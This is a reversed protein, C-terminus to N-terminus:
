QPANPNKSELWYFADQFAQSESEDENDHTIMTVDNGRGAAEAKDVYPASWHSSSETGLIATPCRPADAYHIISLPKYFPIIKEKYLPPHSSNYFDRAHAELDITPGVALCGAVREDFQGHLVATHTNGEIGVAYVRNPDIAEVNELAYTLANRANVMGGRSQLYEDCMRSYVEVLLLVAERREPGPFEAGPSFSAFEEADQNITGDVGYVIIVAGYGEALNSYFSKYEDTLRESSVGMLPDGGVMPSILCPLSGPDTAIEPVFIYVKSEYGPNGQSIQFEVSHFVANGTVEVPDDLHPTPFDSESPWVEGVKKSPNAGGIGFSIDSFGERITRFVKPAVFAIAGLFGVGMILVFSWNLVKKQIGRSKIKRKALVELEDVEEEEEADFTDFENWLSDGGQPEPQLASSPLPASQQRPQRPPQQPVSQQVPAPPQPAPAQPAPAQAAPTPRIPTEAAPAPDDMMPVMFDIGCHPCKTAQGLMSQDAEFPGQCGPCAFRFSM